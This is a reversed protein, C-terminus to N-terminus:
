QGIQGAAKELLRLNRLNAKFWVDAIDGLWPIIGILWEILLNSIMRIQVGRGLRHRYAVYVPYLGALMGLTDGVGPVLGIIGEFGFRIGMISFKSDLWNALWRARQLDIQLDPSGPRTITQIAQTM